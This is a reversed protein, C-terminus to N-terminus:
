PGDLTEDAEGKAEAMARRLRRRYAIASAQAPARNIRSANPGQPSRPDTDGRGYDNVGQANEPARDDQGLASMQDNCPRSHSRKEAQLHRSRTNKGDTTEGIDGSAAESGPSRQDSKQLACARLCDDLHAATWLYAGRYGRRATPTLEGKSVLELLSSASSYGLYKAAEETTMYPTLTPTNHHAELASAIREFVGILRDVRTSVKELYSSM